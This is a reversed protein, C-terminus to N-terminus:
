LSYLAPRENQKSARVRETIVFVILGAVVSIAVTKVTGKM